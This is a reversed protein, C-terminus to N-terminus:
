IAEKRNMVMQSVCNMVKEIKHIRNLCKELVIFGPSRRRPSLLVPILGNTKSKM